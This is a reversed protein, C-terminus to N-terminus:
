ARARIPRVKRRRITVSRTAGTLKFGVKFGVTVIKEITTKGAMSFNNDGSFTKDTRMTTSSSLGSRWQTSQTVSQSDTFYTNDHTLKDITGQVSQQLQSYNAPYSFVNGPEWPPQYWEINPGVAYVTETTSPASFQVTLPRKDSEQCNPKGQPCVKQGLVEYVWINFTSTTYVVSDGWGTTIGITESRSQFTGQETETSHKIDQTATVTDQVKFGEGEDYDGVEFSAGLTEKFGFSHSVTDTKTTDTGNESEITYQTNFSDPLASLNLVTPSTEGHPIVFDVHMPPLATIADPQTYDEITIKTGQGLRYSRGNPAHFDGAAISMSQPQVAGTDGTLYLSHGGSSVREPIPTSM